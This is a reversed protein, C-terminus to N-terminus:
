TGKPGPSELMYLLVFYTPSELAITDGPQTVARLSLNLAEVCGNTIVIDGATLRCGVEVARRALAERLEEAGISRLYTVVLEPKRRNITSISKALHAAPFWDPPPMVGGLAIAGRQGLAQFYEELLTPMVVHRAMAPPKSLAPEPLRRPPTAVFFGSRPRAEIQRSNELERFAQVATAMSVGYRSSVRRTSPLRDGVKLTGRAIAGALESALAKYLHKERDVILRAM